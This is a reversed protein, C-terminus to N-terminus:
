LTGKVSVLGAYPSAGDSDSEFNHLVTEKVGPQRQATTGSSPIAGTQIGSCGAILLAFAAASLIRGMTPLM